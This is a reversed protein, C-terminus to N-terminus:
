IKRNIYGTYLAEPRVLRNDQRSEIFHAIYGFVRAMVFMSTFFELPIGLTYLVAGKYFEVNAWIEKQKKQMEFQVAEEVAKLTLFIDEFETGICLEQAMPKLIKARPDVTKYERHGMGMIKIKNELANLVYEKAKEPRGISLAMRLAEEDAGGHLKGYLAGIAASIVSQVPALTSAVVRGTFASANFSHEMQLIETVNFIEIQKQTPKKGHFIYLFNEYFSLNEDSEVLKLNNKLRYYNAILALIKASIILGKITEDQNIPIKLDMEPTLDLVPVMSQLVLMPHTTKPINKLIEIEFNTFKSHKLLFRELNLNEEASPFDGFLLLWIVETPSKKNVIENIDYGRYSLRGEEGEVNSIKTKDVIIGELGKYIPKQLSEIDEM